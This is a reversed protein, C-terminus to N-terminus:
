ATKRTPATWFKCNKIAIPPARHLGNEGYNQECSQCDNQDQRQSLIAYEGLGGGSRLTASRGWRLLLLIGIRGLRSIRCLLSRLGPHSDGYINGYDREINDGGRLVAVDDRTKLFLIEADEVVAHRLGDGVKRGSFGGYRHDKEKFEAATAIATKKRIDTFIPRRSEEGRQLLFVPDSEFRKVHFRTDFDVERLVFVFDHFPEIMEIEGAEAFRVKEVGDQFGHIAQLIYFALLGDDHQGAADICKRFVRKVLGHLLEALAVDRNKADTQAAGKLVVGIHVASHAAQPAHIVELGFVM